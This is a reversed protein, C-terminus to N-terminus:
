FFMRDKSFRLAHFVMVEDPVFGRGTKLQIGRLDILNFIFLGIDVGIPCLSAALLLFPSGQLLLYGNHAIHLLLLLARRGDDWGTPSLLALSSLFPEQQVIPHLAFCLAVKGHAGCSGDDNGHLLKLISHQFAPHLSFQGDPKSPAPRFRVDV